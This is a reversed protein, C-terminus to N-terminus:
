EKKNKLNIIMNEISKNWKFRDKYISNSKTRLSQGYFYETGANYTFGYQPPITIRLLKRTSRRSFFLPVSFFFGGNTGSELIQAYLGVSTENFIRLASAFLGFDENVFRAMGAKLEMNFHPWFWSLSASATFREMPSHVWENDVFHSSGVLGAMLELNLDGDLLYLESSSSIGYISGPFNGASVSCKFNDSFRFDQTLSIIGPRIHDGEYGLSNQIPFIVQGTFSGGQWPSFEVAPARNFQTEYFKEVL